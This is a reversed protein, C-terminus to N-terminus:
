CKQPMEPRNWRNNRASNSREKGEKERAGFRDGAVVCVCLDCIGVSESVTWVAGPTAQFAAMLFAGGAGGGGDRVCQRGGESGRSRRPAPLTGRRVPTDRLSPPRLPCAPGAGRARGQARVERRRPHGGYVSAQPAELPGTRHLGRRRGHGAGTRARWPARERAGQRECRRRAILDSPQTPRARRRPRAGGRARFPGRRRYACACVRVCACECARLCPCAARRLRACVCAHAQALM